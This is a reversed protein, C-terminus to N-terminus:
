TGPSTRSAGNMDSFNLFQSYYCVAYIRRERGEVFNGDFETTLSSIGNSVRRKIVNTIEELNTTLGAGCNWLWNINFGLPICL